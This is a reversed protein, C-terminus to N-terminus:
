LVEELPSPHSFTNSFDGWGPFAGRHLGNRCRLDPWLQKKQCSARIDVRKIMVATDLGLCLFAYLLRSRMRAHYGETSRFIM